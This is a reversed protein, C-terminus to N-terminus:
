RFQFQVGLGIASVKPGSVGPVWVRGKTNIDGYQYFLSIRADHGDIVYNVGAEIEDRNSSNFPINDTWRVYPQFQGILVKEPFLYLASATYANGEFTCFCTPDALATPTLGPAFYKYEGSFTFVSKSPLVKELLIDVDMGLFNTPSQATGAGHVQYQFSSGVTLIDGQTGYYTSSLYDGPNQEVNWFNYGVRAAVLPSTGMDQLALGRFLGFIYTFRNEPSASGWINMGTDRAFRGDIRHETSFDSPYFAIREFEYISQFFPGALEGRDAPTIMRGLWVNFASSVEFKLIGDLVQIDASLACSACETNFEFKIYKHLQGNVYIRWNNMKASPSWQSQPLDSIDKFRTKVGGGISINRYKDYEYHFGDLGPFAWGLESVGLFFLIFFFLLTHHCCVSGNFIM